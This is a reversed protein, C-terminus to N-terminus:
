TEDVAFWYASLYGVMVAVSKSEGVMVVFVVPLRPDLFLLGGFAFVSLFYSLMAAWITRESVRNGVAASAILAFPVFLLTNYNLWSVPLVEISTVVWLAFLRWDRDPASGRKLTAKLTLAMFVLSAAYGLAHAFRDGAPSLNWGNLYLCVRWVFSAPATNWALKFLARDGGAAALGLPFDVIVRWGMLAACAALGIAGGAAMFALARWKRTILLYLGMLCPYGRVLALAALILGAFGDRGRALCRVSLALGLIVLVQSQATLFLDILPPYILALAIMLCADVPRLGSTPGLLFYFSAILAAFNIAIWTWYAQNLPLGGLAKLVLLFAPTEPIIEDHKFAKTHLGLRAGAPALSTHYPNEGQRMITAAAYYDAFDEEHIRGPLAGAVRYIQILAALCLFAVMLPHRMVALIGEISLAPRQAGPLSSAPRRDVDTREARPEAISM